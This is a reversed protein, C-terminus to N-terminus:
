VSADNHRRIARDYSRRREIPVRVRQEKIEEVIQELKNM